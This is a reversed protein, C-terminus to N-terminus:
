PEDESDKTVFSPIAQYGTNQYRRRLTSVSISSLYVTHPTIVVSKPKSTDVSTVKGLNRQFDLFEKNLKSRDMAEMSMIAMVDEDFISVQAGLHIFVLIM